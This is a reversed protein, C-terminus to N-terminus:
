RHERGRRRQAHHALRDAGARGDRCHDRRQDHHPPHYLRLRPVRAFGVLAHRQRQRQRHDGHGHGPHRLRKRRHRSRPRPDSLILSGGAVVINGSSVFTHDLYYNGTGAKTLTFGNLNLSTPGYGSGLQGFDGELNFLTDATLTIIPNQARTNDWAYGGGGSSNLLAGNGDPGTGGITLAGFAGNGISQQCSYGHMDLAAGVAVTVSSFPNGLADFNGMVVKGNSITTGGTYGSGYIDDGALTLTGGGLKMLSGGGSIMGSYTQNGSLDYVLAAGNAIAIIGGAISGDNGSAGTGLQLTGSSITTLGTYTNSGTLTLTGSGVKTLASTGFIGDDTIAGSFTSSTNLAGISWTTYGGNASILNGNGSLEGLSVTGNVNTFLFGGVSGGTVVWKAAAGGSNVVQPYFYSSSLDISITGSFGSLDPLTPAIYNTPSATVNVTGSGTMSGTLKDTATWFGSTYNFAIGSTTNPSAFINNALTQGTTFTLTGGNLTLTGSGLANNNAPVLVGATLTTGGSYSNTGTLTLIGSGTKALAGPGGIAGSVLLDAAGGGAAVNFTTTTLPSPYSDVLMNAAIVAPSANALTTISPAVSDITCFDSGSGGSSGGVAITGGCMTLTKMQDYAGPILTGGNIVIPVATGNSYAGFSNPQASADVTAGSSITLTGSGTPNGSCNLVLTGASVTAGGSFSSPVMLTLTGSGVKTLSGGGGIAGNVTMGYGQTDITGAVGSNINITRGSNLAVGDAGAQLTSNGSFTLAGGAAM